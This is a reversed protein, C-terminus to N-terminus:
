RGRYLKFKFLSAINCTYQSCPVIGVPTLHSCYRRKALFYMSEVLSHTIRLAPVVLVSCCLSPFVSLTANDSVSPREFSHYTLVLLMVPKAVLADLFDFATCARGHKTKKRDDQDM